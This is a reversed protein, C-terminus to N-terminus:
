RRLSAQPAHQAALESDILRSAEGKTVTMILEEPVKLRKLLARQKPTSPTLKWLADTVAMQTAHDDWGMMHALTVARHASWDALIQKHRDLAYSAEWKTLHGAVDSDWGFDILRQRQLDTVQDMPSQLYRSATTLVRALADPDEHIEELDELVDRWDWSPAVDEVLTAFLDIVADSHLRLHGLWREGEASVRAERALREVVSAGNEPDQRMGILDKVTILKHRRTNDAIDLLIMHTKGTDPSPRTGRGVMQTFLSLSKTPRALIITQVTPEDFGETYLMANVLIQIEGSKFRALIARREDPQTKGDVAEAAIHASRFAEALDYAHQVGATFAITKTDAAHHQYAEVILRNRPETNLANSLEGANFDGATTHVADLDAQGQIRFARIDVLYGDQIGEQIGYSYVIRDFTGELSTKDTRYPTATLGLLLEPHLYDLIKRYSPAPAHHCNHVAIHQQGVLYTHPGGVDLNFVDVPFSLALPEVRDVKRWGPPTWVVDRDSALYEAEIWGEPTWFPHNPTCHMTEGDVTLRILQTAQRCHTGLVQATELKQTTANFAIVTEGVTITEIRRGDVLTGSPFCEDVIVTGFQDPTWRKLRKENLSQVSAVVVPAQWGDEQAKVIGVEAEPWAVEFAEAAQRILEDRHVIWLTRQNRRSAYFTGSFTKGLGTAMSWIQRTTGVGLAEDAATMAAHQYPRLTLKSM